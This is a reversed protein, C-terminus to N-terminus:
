GVRLWIVSRCLLSINKLFSGTLEQGQLLTLKNRQGGTFVLYVLSISFFFRYDSLSLIKTQVLSIIYYLNCLSFKVFHRNYQFPNLTFTQLKSVTVKHLKLIFRFTILQETSIFLTM